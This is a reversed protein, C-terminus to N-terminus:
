DKSSRANRTKLRRKDRLLVRLYNRSARLEVLAQRFDGLSFNETGKSLNKLAFRLAQREDPVAFQKATVFHGPNEEDIEIRIFVIAKEVELYSRWISRTQQVTPEGSISPLLEEIMRRADKLGGAAERRWDEVGSTAPDLWKPLSRIKM